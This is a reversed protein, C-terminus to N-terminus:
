LYKNNVESHRENYAKFVCEKECLVIPHLPRDANCRPGGWKQRLSRFGGAKM